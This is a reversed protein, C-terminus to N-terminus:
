LSQSRKLIIEATKEPTMGNMDVEVDCWSRYLPLRLQYLRELPQSQSIPRGKTPLLSLDRSLFVIFSNEALAYYNEERTIIGGGASIVIGTKQSLESAAASELDRFYEEGEESFIEPITRGDRAVVMEDTDYLERGLM